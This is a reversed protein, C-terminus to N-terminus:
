KVIQLRSFLKGDVTKSLPIKVTVDDPDAGNEVVTVIVGSADAPTSVPGIVSSSWSDLAGGFQIVQRTVEAEAADFRKFSVTLYEGDVTATPLISRDNALPNGNLYYELMNSIGDGDPDQTPGNNAPTLGKTIAWSAYSNSAIVRLTGDVPLYSMDWEIGIGPTAPSISAFNGVYTGADFLKFSDGAALTGALNTVALTGDYTLTTIGYVQDCTGDTKKVEMATTGALTASNNVTLRGIWGIGIGPSLTASAQVTVPGGITGTGGIMAGAAVSLTGGGALSGNVVLTGASVMTAGSYTNIGTLTLTGTGTKGLMGTGSIVDSLTVADSRNWILTGRDIINGTVSGSTSGNGLQLTGANIITDGTFDNATLVTLVGTGNKTLGTPGTLKGPGTITYNLASNNMVVGAPTVTAALNVTTNAVAADDFMVWDGDTYNISSGGASWNATTTDWNGDVVGSWTEAATVSESTITISPIQSAQLRVAWLAIDGSFGGPIIMVSDAFVPQGGAPTFWTGGAGSHHWTPKIYPEDLSIEVDEPWSGSNGIFGGVQTAQAVLTNGYYARVTLNGSGLPSFDANFAYNGTGAKTTTLTGLVGNTTGHTGIVQERLYAGVPANGAPDLPEWLAGWGTLNPALAVKVGDNGSTGLNAVVLTNNSGPTLTAGGLPTHTLNAYSLSATAVRLTGDVPLSSMDWVIGIGPTAPSIAAFSGSYSVADFLKFSDGAELTGGLNNVVLTGGYTVMSLGIVRNSNPSVGKNVNMLTTGSLTATNNVTLELYVDFFSDIVFGGGDQVTLPGGITGSGGLTGGAAVTVAGGGALSGNVLLTGGSVATTGTYTNAGTLTLTGTGTKTLAGTGSIVGPFTVADARNWILTGRDIINGTISGITGGNGLQLTGGDIITGGTFDHDTLVTLSGTGSKTLGTPGTLKGPGTFSYNLASNDVAVGVPALTAALNVTTNGIAADDFMVWDGDTYGIVSGGATWNATTTDWNGDVAGSWSEAATVSENTITISPIQAALVQIASVSIAGFSGGPIVIFTDGVVPGGSGLTFSAAPGHWALLLTGPEPWPFPPDPETWPPWPRPWPYPWPYPPWPHPPPWITAASTPAVTTVGLNTFVGPGSPTVTIQAVLDAGNYVLVTAGTAALPSFDASMVYNGSGAKTLQMTALTGNTVAGGTGILKQAFAAGVPLVVPEPDLPEWQAQWGLTNPALATQVGDNGSSGLNSVVLTNSIVNLTAAGLATHTLGAYPVSELVVKLTGDVPLCSRDWEIGIGPTAPSIATFNGVYNGADFLKFSDGAALTGALNTVALTGGYTLTTIGFVEDHTGTTKNVEMAITGALDLTNNVTIRGIWGIGIGPSLTAGAEVTVPGGITGTGGIMAGAAVNVAGGGLTGNVVLTGASVMTAGSYTNIGTLSLTGLGNKTLGFMGSITGGASLTGGRVTVQRNGTLVVVGTGLNLDNTGVFTFDAGWIQTNNSALMITGGSTNDLTGPGSINLTGSGIASGSNINLQGAFLVTGGSYTNFANLTLSGTGSQTLSGSDSIVSSFTVGDARNWILTGRDIINGTVSGSTGGNGLQLTGGDIITGGTFDNATLVTLIGTGNKALGTPGTLKGPGTFSYNLASNDVTVGGPAVTSALVVSTGGLASDDFLVLDGDMYGTMGFGSHWNLPTGIDWTNDPM